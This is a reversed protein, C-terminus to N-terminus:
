LADSRLLSFEKQAMFDLSFKYKLGYGSDKILQQQLVLIACYGEKFSINSATKVSVVAVNYRYLFLKM